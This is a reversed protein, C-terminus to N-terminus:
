SMVTCIRINELFLHLFVLYYGCNNLTLWILRTIYALVFIGGDNINISYLLLLNRALDAYTEGQRQGCSKGCKM